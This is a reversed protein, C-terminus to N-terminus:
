LMMAIRNIAKQPDDDSECFASFAEDKLEEIRTILAPNGEITKELWDLVLNFKHAAEESGMGFATARPILNAM